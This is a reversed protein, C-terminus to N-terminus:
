NQLIKDDDIEGVTIIRIYKHLQLKMLDYFLNEKLPKKGIFVSKQLLKYENNLLQSRFWNRKLRMKEPIDFMVIRWKGDWPKENLEKERFFKIFSLGLATLKYSKEKKEVLGKKQLRWLITRASNEKLNKFEEYYDWIDKANTYNRFIKNANLKRTDLLDNLTLLGRETLGFLIAKSLISIKSYSNKIKGKLNRKM